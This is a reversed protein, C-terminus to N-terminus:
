HALLLSPGNVADLLTRTAGGFVAERLRTHGWAGAVILGAKLRSAAQVLATGEPGDEIRETSLAGAAHASMYAELPEFAPDAAEIDLGVRCQVATTGAAMALLPLAQRVARGAEASGDWAIVAHDGLTEPDSRAILVPSCQQLLIQAFADPAAPASTLSDQSLVALDALTLAHCLAIEPRTALARLEMRPLGEGEGYVLDAANCVRRCLADLADTQRKQDALIAAQTEAPLTTGLLMGYSILDLSPNPAFLVVEVRAKHTVALNAAFALTREDGAHDFVVAVITKFSM